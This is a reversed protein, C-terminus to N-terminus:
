FLLLDCLNEPPTSTHNKNKAFSPSARVSLNAYRGLSVFIYRQKEANKAFSFFM